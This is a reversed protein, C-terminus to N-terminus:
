ESLDEICKGNERLDQAFKEREIKDNNANVNKKRGKM